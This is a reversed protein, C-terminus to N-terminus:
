SYIGYEEHTIAWIPVLKQKPSSLEEVLTVLDDKKNTVYQSILLIFKGHLM